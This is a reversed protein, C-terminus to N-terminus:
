VHEHTEGEEIIECDSDAVEANLKAWAITNHHAGLERGMQREMRPTITAMAADIAEADTMVKGSPPTVTVYVDMRVIKYEMM